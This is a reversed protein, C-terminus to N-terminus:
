APINKYKNTTNIITPDFRLDLQTNEANTTFTLPLYWTGNPATGYVGVAVLVEEEACDVVNEVM